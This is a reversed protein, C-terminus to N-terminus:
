YLSFYGGKTKDARSQYEQAEKKLQLVTDQEAAAFEDMRNESVEFGSVDMPHPDVLGLPGTAAARLDDYRTLEAISADTKRLEQNKAKVLSQLRATEMEYDRVLFNQNVQWLGLAMSVIGVLMISILTPLSLTGPSQPKETGKPKTTSNRRVILPDSKKKMLM